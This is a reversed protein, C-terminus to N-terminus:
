DPNWSDCPIHCFFSLVNILGIVEHNHTNQRELNDTCWKCAQDGFPDFSPTLSTLFLGGVLGPTVSLNHAVMYTSPILGLNEVFAFLSFGSLWTELRMNQKPKSPLGGLTVNTVPHPM